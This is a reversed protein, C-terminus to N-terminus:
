QEIWWLRLMLGITTTYGVETAVINGQRDIIVDLPLVKGGFAKFWEGDIDNIITNPNDDPHETLWTALAEPETQVAVMVVPYHEAAQNVNSHMVRCVPCWPAFFHILTPQRADAKLSFPQQDATMGSLTPVKGTTMDQHQWARILVIIGIIVIAEVSWRVWRPRNKWEM